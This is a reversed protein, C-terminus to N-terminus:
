YYIDAIPRFRLIERRLIKLYHFVTTILETPFLTMPVIYAM